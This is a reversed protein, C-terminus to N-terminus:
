TIWYRPSYARLKFNLIARELPREHKLEHSRSSNKVALLLFARCIKWFLLRVLFKRQAKRSLSLIIFEFAKGVAESVSRRTLDSVNLDSNGRQSECNRKGANVNAFFSERAKHSLRQVTWRECQLIFERLATWEIHLANVTMFANEFLIRPEGTGWLNSNKSEVSPSCIFCCFQKFPKSAAALSFHLGFMEVAFRITRTSAFISITKQLMNESSPHMTSHNSLANKNKTRFSKTGSLQKCHKLTTVVSSLRFARQWCYFHM